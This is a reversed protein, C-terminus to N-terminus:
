DTFLQQNRIKKIAPQWDGTDSLEAALSGAAYGTSLCTGIVRASAMAAETASLGRGAFFLNDLHRSVLMGATIWYGDGMDFYRLEPKRQQNWLEMPWVGLAVGDDPKACTLVHSENLVDLGESREATRIGVETAMASIQLNELLPERRNLFNIITNARTRADLEYQTRCLQSGDFLEPMGLKLMAQGQQLTGPIISLRDCHTDLDGAQIGRQIWRILNLSLLDQTMTPLGNVQFVFAGAQYNTYKIQDIGTLMSMQANGTCDVVAAPYLSFVQSQTQIRLEGIRRNNVRAGAVYSQLLISVGAQQMQWVAQEHFVIPCYPLFHLGEGFSYIKTQSKEKIAESFERAFGQVAYRVETLDRYFLGCITGVLATTALGGTFSYREVIVVNAGTKAAAVAAAIGAAGAGVVVVDCHM